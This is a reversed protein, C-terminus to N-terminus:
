PMRRDPHATGDRRLYRRAPGDKHTILDHDTYHIVDRQHRTGIVLYRLPANSRNAIRHGIPTGAPWCATDGARLTTESDEILVAEGSLMYVMEDEAEHWHRHGSFAGPPLEEIFAGFQSLGGLDSILQYRYAGLGTGLVAHEADEADVWPRATDPLIRPFQAAHDFPKGWVEPLNLLEPPLAGGRLVTGDAAEVRWETATNIQRDGTDPYSCIDGLVRTGIILYRCPQDTHNHLHHANADGHRWCAADGPHLVHPGEDDIVTAAGDLLYVMEDEASHWHRTSSYAGPALTDLYAGFQTLGGGASLLVLEAGDDGIERPIQNPELKM